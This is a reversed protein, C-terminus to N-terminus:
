TALVELSVQAAMLVVVLVELFGMETLNEV